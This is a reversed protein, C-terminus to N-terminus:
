KFRFYTWSDSHLPINHFGVQPRVHSSARKATCLSRRKESRGDPLILPSVHPKLWRDDWFQHPKMPELRFSPMDQPAPTEDTSAVLDWRAICAKHELQSLEVSTWDEFERPIHNLHEIPTLDSGKYRRGQFLDTAEPDVFEYLRVGQTWGLIRNKDPHHKLITETWFEVELQVRGPVFDIEHWLPAISPFNGLNM